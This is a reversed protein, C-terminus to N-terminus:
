GGLLTLVRHHFTHKALVERRARAAMAQAEEPHDQIWAIKEVLEEPSDFGLYHENESFLPHLDRVRSTLLPVKIAMAEFIRTNLEGSRTVNLACHGKSMWQAYAEGDAYGVHHKFLRRAEETYEIRMPVNHWLAVWNYIIEEDWPRHYDPNAAPPLWKAEVGNEEFYRVASRCAAYVKDFTKGRKVYQDIDPAGPNQPAVMDIAWFISPHCHEPCLFYDYDGNDVFLYNDWGEPEEGPRFRGVECIEGLAEALNGSIGLRKSSGKHIIAVRRVHREPPKGYHTIGFDQKPWRVRLWQRREELRQHLEEESHGSRAFDRRRHYYAPYNFVFCRFDKEYMQNAFEAEEFGCGPGSFPGRDALRCGAELVERRFMAYSGAFNGLGQRPTETFGEFDPDENEGQAVWPNVGVYDTDEHEDLYEKLASITGRVPLIDGSLYFVYKGRTKAFGENYGRGTGVNKPLNVRIINGTWVEELDARHLIKGTEACITTDGHPWRLAYTDLWWKTKDISGNDVFVIEHPIDKLDEHLRKISRAFIPYENWGLIVCSVVPVGHWPPNFYQPYRQAMMVLRQEYVSGYQNPWVGTEKYLRNFSGSQRRYVEIGAFNHHIIGIENWHYQMENDDVGWGPQGFPGEECFLRKKFARHRCLAYATGSLCKQQFITSEDIAVLRRHAKEKDTTYCTAVEPAIVDVDPHKELYAQMATVSGRLPRIGGDLLLVYDYPLAAKLGANRGPGAGMNERNIVTIDSQTALWEAAGDESGNNVVVIQDVPEDRLIPLQEQLMPLNDLTTIVVKITM